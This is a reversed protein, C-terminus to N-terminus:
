PEHQDRGWYEEIGQLLRLGGERGLAMAGDIDGAAARRMALKCYRIADPRAVSITVALEEATAQVDAAAVVQTALGLREAERAQIRRGSLALELARDYGIIGPLVALGVTDPLLGITVEPLAFQADDGVIRIDCAMALQAGAGFAFGRVAAISIFPGDILWKAAAQAAILDREEYETRGRDGEEGTLGFPSMAGEALLRRDVGACFADGEGRVIVCKVADDDLLEEGIRRLQQWMEPILANDHDPRDLIVHAVGDHRETRVPRMSLM